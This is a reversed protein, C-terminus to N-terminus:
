DLKKVLGRYECEYVPFPDPRLNADGKCILVEQDRWIVRHMVPGPSNRANQYAVVDGVRVQAFPLPVVQMREGGYVAPAMSGTYPVM